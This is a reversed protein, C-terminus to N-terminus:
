DGYDGSDEEPCHDCRERIEADLGHCLQNVLIELILVGQSFSVIQVGHGRNLESIAVAKSSELYRLILWIDADTLQRQPILSNSYRKRFTDFTMLNDTVSVNQNSQHQDTIKSAVQKLAPMVALLGSPRNAGVFSAAYKLPRTVFISLLYSSWPSSSMTGADIVSEIPVLDGTDLM